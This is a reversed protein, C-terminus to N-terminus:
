EAPIRVLRADATPVIADDYGGAVLVTRRGVVTASVFSRRPVVPSFLVTIADTRPDFVDIRRGGAIVVRGDGLRVVAGDLKYEGEGLDPGPAVASGDVIETSALLARGEVTTAGGVVLVRGDALAVVAHKVRPTTLTPGPTRRDGALWETSAVADARTTGGVLLVRDGVLAAAHAARPRLLPVGPAFIGAGPDYVEVSRLAEGDAGFGGAVVVRGDPLLTATHDARATALGAAPSFSDTAPDFLEASATPPLGEGPYGGVLLVRGDALLTASGSARPSGTRPGATIRQTTPDYVDTARAADFGGCGPETCGGTVLVRGDALATAEHVARPQTLHLGAVTADSPDPGPPSGEDGGSCGAALLLLAALLARAGTM